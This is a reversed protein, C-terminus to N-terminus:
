RPLALCHRPYGEKPIAWDASYCHRELVQTVAAFESVGHVEVLVIPRINTLITDAGLLVQAEAGEVDIKMINPAPNGAAVFDDLSIAPVKQIPGTALPPKQNNWNIGGQSRPSGKQFGIASTSTSWVAANVVRIKGTLRNRLIHCRLRAVNEADAEFAIAKSTIRAIPLAYFGIYAGVDYAVMHTKLHSLLAKQVSPEHSGAWWTREAALNIHLWIGGAFGEQVQIWENRSPFAHTRFFQRVVSNARTAGPVRSLGAEPLCRTLARGAKMLLGISQTALRAM